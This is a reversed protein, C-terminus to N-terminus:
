HKLNSDRRYVCRWDRLLLSFHESCFYVLGDSTKLSIQIGLLYSTYANPNYNLVHALMIASFFRHAKFAGHRLLVTDSSAATIIGDLTDGCDGKFLNKKICVLM